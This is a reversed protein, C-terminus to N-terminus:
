HPGPTSTSLRLMCVLMFLDCQEFTLFM